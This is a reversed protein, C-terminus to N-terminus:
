IADRAAAKKLVHEMLSPIGPEWVDAEGYLEEHDPHLPVWIYGRANLAKREALGAGARQLTRDIVAGNLAPAGSEEFANAVAEAAALLGADELERYRGMYFRERVGRFVPSASELTDVAITAGATVGAAANLLAEGWEQIFYPYRQSADIVMTLVDPDISIGNARLPEVLAAEAADPDLLRIRLEAARSAFTAGMLNLRDELGPTGALCLLFPARNGVEQSLNLLAEGMALDLRHAEDLLVALPKRRCRTLLLSKLNGHREGGFTWEGSLPGLNARVTAEAPAVGPVLAKAMEEATAIATPTVWVADIRGRREIENEFWRLLATKGNGRPGLVVIDRPIRGGSALVDHQLRLFKQEEERGALYPPIEGRGPTFTPFTMADGKLAM